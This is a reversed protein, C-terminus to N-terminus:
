MTTFVVETPIKQFAKLLGFDRHKDEEEKIKEVDKNPQDV